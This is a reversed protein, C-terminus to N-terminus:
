TATRRRLPAPPAELPDDGAPLLEGSPAFRLVASERAWRAPQQEGDPANLREAHLLPVVEDWLATGSPVVTVDAAWQVLRGAQRERSRVVVVARTLPLPLPLPQELGGTVAYVAGDHWVHWLPQERGGAEPRVWVLGSRRTAEEVLPHPM